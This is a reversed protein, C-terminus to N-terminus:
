QIVISFNDTWQNEFKDTCIVSIIATHGSPTSSDISIMLGSNSNAEPTLEQNYGSIDGFTYTSDDVISVYQDDTTAVMKVQIANSNSENRFRLQLRVTEGININGDDNGSVGNATGDYIEYPNNGFLQVSAGIPEVVMSFQDSWNTAFGGDFDVDFNVIHGDPTGQIASLLISSNTNAEPTAEVSGIDMDGLTYKSGSIISVYQDNTSITMKIDNVSESGNNKVRLQIRVSEGQSFEDDDNGDSNNATGDYIQYPNTGFLELEADSINVDDIVSCSILMLSIVFATISIKDLIRLKM